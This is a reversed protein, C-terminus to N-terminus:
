YWRMTTALIENMEDSTQTPVLNIDLDSPMYEWAHGGVPTEINKNTVRIKGTQNDYYVMTQNEVVRRQSPAEVGQGRLGFRIVFWKDSIKRIGEFIFYDRATQRMQGAMSHVIRELEDLNFNSNVSEVPTKNIASIEDILKQGVVEEHGGYGERNILFLKKTIWAHHGHLDCIKRAIEVHLDPHIKLRLAGSGDGWHCENVFKRHAKREEINHHSLKWILLDINFRNIPKENMPNPKKFGIDKEFGFIDKKAEMWTKFSLDSM